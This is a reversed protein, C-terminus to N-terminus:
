KGNRLKNNQKNSSANRDVMLHNHHYDLDTLILNLLFFTYLWVCLSYGLHQHEIYIEKVFFHSLIKAVFQSKNVSVLWFTIWACVFRCGCLVCVYIEYKTSWLNVMKKGTRVCLYNHIVVSTSWQKTGTSLQTLWQFIITGITTLQWNRYLIRYSVTWCWTSM